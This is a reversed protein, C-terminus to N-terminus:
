FKWHIVCPTTAGARLDCDWWMGSMISVVIAFGIGFLLGVVIRGRVTLRTPVVEADLAMLRLALVTGMVASVTAMIAIYM